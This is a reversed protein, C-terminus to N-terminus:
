SAGGESFRMGMVRKELNITIVGQRVFDYGLMGDINRGYAESLPLLSTIITGMGSIQRGGISFDNLTGFLVEGSGTGAGGLDSRRTITISNLVKKPASKNIVNTEAGTDFCFYLPNGAVTGKLLIVPVQNELKYLVDCDQAGNGASIRNGRKDLLHFQLSSNEIDIVTEFRRIMDCGFLGLVKIGRRNELHGLNALDAPVSSYGLEAIRIEEVTIRDVQGASGTIGQATVAEQKVYNRFYSRNLVLGTAGTDFILNGEQGDIRAEILMLRGARKMPITISTMGAPLEPEAITLSPLASPRFGAIRVLSTVRNGPDDKTFCLCAWASLLLFVVHARQWSSQIPRFHGPRAM